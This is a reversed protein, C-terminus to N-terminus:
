VRDDQIYLRDKSRLHYHKDSPIAVNTKCIAAYIHHRKGQLNCKLKSSINSGLSDSDSPFQHDNSVSNEKTERGNPFKRKDSKKGTKM